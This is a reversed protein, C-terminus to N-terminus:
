LSEYTHCEKKFTEIFEDFTKGYKSNFYPKFNDVETKPIEVLTSECWAKDPHKSKKLDKLLASYINIEDTSLNLHIVYYNGKNKIYFKKNMNDSPHKLFKLKDNSQKREGKHYLANYHEGIKLVYLQLHDDKNLSDINLKKESLIELNIGLEKLLLFQVLGIDLEAAFITSTRILESIIAYYEDENMNKIANISKFREKFQHSQENQFFKFTNNNVGKLYDFYTDYETNNDRKEKIYKEDYLTKINEALYNRLKQVFDEESINNENFLKECVRKLLSSKELSVYLARYFCNGDGRVDKSYWGNGLEVEIYRNSNRTTSSNTTRTTSPSRRDSPSRRYSLNTMDRSIESRSYPLQRSSPLKARMEPYKGRSKILHQNLKDPSKVELIEVKNIVKIKENFKFSRLNKKLESPTISNDNVTLDVIVSGKSILDIHLDSDKLNKFKEIIMKKLAEKFKENDNKIDNYDMYITIRIKIHGKSLRGSKEHNYSGIITYNESFNDTMYNLKIKGRHIDGISIYKRFDKRELESTFLLMKQENFSPLHRDTPSLTGPTPSSTGPTPSSTGPTPSLTGPTPSLTGPTPSLTGPIPSPSFM